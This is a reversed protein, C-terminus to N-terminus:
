EVVIEDIFIFSEGGAAHHWAPLLGTSAAVVKLYRTNLTDFNAMFTHTFQGKADMPIEHNITKLPTYNKGDASSYVTVNAPLVIWSYSNQMCDMSISQVPTIKKLDIEIDVDQGQYGQWRGDAFNNSGKIGDLLAMDGGAAYAPNYSSYKSNLKALNGIGKHLFILKQTLGYTQGNVLVSAKILTKSSVPLPSAYVRSSAVPDTGDTTYVITHDNFLTRLTVMRQGDTIEESPDIYVQKDLNLFRDALKNYDGMNKDLWWSRNEREWLLLYTTKIGHLEEVLSQLELKVKAIDSLDNKQTAKYLHVRAINKHAAFIVRRIALEAYDLNATNRKTTKRLAAVETLMQSAEAALELNATETEANTNSPFFNLIDEWFGSEGLLGKAKRFRLSDIHFYLDTVGKNQFFVADFNTNFQKLKQERERTAADGTLPSAPNWSCEAGWALGHWNYEFLNHGNDDWATNMMGMAGLKAGDRTYNSINVAANGLAPWLEGWCGVGPAVMFDFGSKVFPHIADDFSEAAHYGWSLVILDKPLRSIIEPKNVAIDGWMMIRKGYPKILKDIRNIHYAYIGSEGISDAMAKSKGEGLGFTEDCNINFFISKYAPIMESYLDSLFTYTREDAPNLIDGNDGLHAYFPNSLIKAMHGFSQFNGMLDMHYKAAYDALEKIEAPTFGDTPSIDPYKDSRFVHETYLNFFNQKFEAMTRIEKKIFEVTPIPGRSIDDMWGRYRMTPKDTIVLCPISNGTRNARILQKLSQVGYFLGAETNAAILIQNSSVDLFYGEEGLSLATLNETRIIKELSKTDRGILLLTVPNVKPKDTLLPQFGLEIKIESALESAAFATESYSLNEIVISTSATFTFKGDLIKVVKPAPIIHIQSQADVMQPLAFVLLFLATLRFSSFFHAM